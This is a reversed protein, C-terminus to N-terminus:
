VMKVNQNNPTLTPDRTVFYLAHYKDFEALSILLQSQKVGTVLVHLLVGFNVMLSDVLHRSISSPNSKLHVSFDAEVGGVVVVGVM